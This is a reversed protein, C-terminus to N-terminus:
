EFETLNNMTDSDPAVIPMNVHMAVCNGLNQAGIMTTMISGWDGGQAFYCNYGLCLMLENRATAIKEVGWGTDKPKGSFGFSPLSPCV